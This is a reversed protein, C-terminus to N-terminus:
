QAQVNDRIRMWIKGLHNQGLWTGDTQLAAGWFLGSGHPRKTVDEVILSDGTALLEVKLQAHAHLVLAIVKDHDSKNM